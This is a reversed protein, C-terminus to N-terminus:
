SCKRFEWPLTTIFHSSLPTPSGWVHSCSQPWNHEWGSSSHQPNSSSLSGLGPEGLPRLAAKSSLVPEVRGFDSSTCPSSDPPFLSSLAPSEQRPNGTPHPASACVAQVCGASCRADTQLPQVSGAPQGTKPVKMVGPCSRPTGLGASSPLSIRIEAPDPFGAPTRTPLELLQQQGFGQSSLPVAPAWRLQESVAPEAGPCQGKSSSESEAKTKNMLVSGSNTRSTNVVLFGPKNRTCNGNLKRPILDLVAM